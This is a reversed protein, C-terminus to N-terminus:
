AADVQATLMVVRTRDDRVDVFGNPDMEWTTRDVRVAVQPEGVFRYGDLLEHIGAVDYTRELENVAAKGFPTTLVLTGGDALLTRIHRMAQLDLRDDTTLGYSGVGLHEITSLLVVADFPEVSSFAEVGSTRVTLNPHAFPYPRPDLATVRYGLSALHLAVTSECCGVDLVRAGPGRDTVAGLVYPIEVIRENVDNLRLSGDEFGVSLPDNVWLGLQAQYGDHGVMRNALVQDRPRLDEFSQPVATLGLEHQMGQVQSRLDALQRSVFYQLEAQATAAVEMRQDVQEISVDIRAGIDNVTLQQARVEDKVMEFHNNVYHRFPMSLKRVLRM